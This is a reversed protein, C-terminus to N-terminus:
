SPEEARVLLVPCSVTRVVMEAVSGLLVRRLGRRGHTGMVILDAGIKKVIDDISSRPEGVEVMPPAFSAEDKNAAVLKALEQQSSDCIQEVTASDIPMGYEAGLVQVGVVNLLHIRADLKGALAVAYALAAASSKGFDIPVLITKALKM